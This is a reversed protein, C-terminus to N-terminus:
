ETEANLNITTIKEGAGTFVGIFNIIFVSLLAIVLGIVAYTITNKGAEVGKPDGGSTLLKYGGLVIMVLIGVGIFVLAYGLVTEILCELGGITVVGDAGEGYVCRSGEFQASAQTPFSFVLGFITLLFITTKIM